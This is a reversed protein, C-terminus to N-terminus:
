RQALVTKLWIRRKAALNMGPMGGPMGPPPGMGGAPGNGGPGDPFQGPGGEPKKLRAQPEIQWLLGIGLPEGPKIKLGPWDAVAQFPIRLQYVYDGWDGALRIAPGLSGDAAIFIERDNESDLIKLLPSAPIAPPPQPGHEGARGNQDQPQTEARRWQPQGPETLHLLGLKKAKRGNVDLWLTLRALSPPRKQHRIDPTFFVYLFRDDNGVGVMMGNEFLHSTIKKSFDELGGMAAGPETLWQGPITEPSRCGLQTLIAATAALITATQILRGYPLKM